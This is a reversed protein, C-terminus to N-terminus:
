SGIECGELYAPWNAEQQRVSHGVTLIWSESRREDMMWLGQSAQLRKCAQADYRMNLRFPAAGRFSVAGRFSLPM